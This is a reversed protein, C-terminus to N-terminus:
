SKAKNDLCYVVSTLVADMVALTQAMPAEFLGLLQSRMVDKSPLASLKKMDVSGYLQGDLYGGIIDVESANEKSFQMVTKTAEIADSGAFVIGIHGAMMEKSLAIDTAKAFVRKKVVELEAGVKSLKIRLDSSTNPRLRAYRVLLFSPSVGLKQKM